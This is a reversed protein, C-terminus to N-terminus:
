IFEKSNSSGVYKDIHETRFKDPLRVDKLPATLARFSSRGSPTGDRALYRRPPSLTRARHCMRDEIVNCLDDRDHVYDRMNRNQTIRRRADNDALHRNGSASSAAESQARRARDNGVSPERRHNDVSREAVILNVMEAGQQALPILPSGEPAMRQISEMITQLQMANFNLNLNQIM